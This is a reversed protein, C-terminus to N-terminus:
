EVHSTSDAAGLGPDRRGRQEKNVFPMLNMVLPQMAIYCALNHINIFSYLITCWFCIRPCSFSDYHVVQLLIDAVNCGYLCKQDEMSSSSAQACTQILM